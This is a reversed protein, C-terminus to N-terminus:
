KIYKLEQLLEFHSLSEMNKLRHSDKKIRQKTMKFSYVLLIIFPISIFFIM